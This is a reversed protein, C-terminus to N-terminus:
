LKLDDFLSMQDTDKVTSLVGLEELVKVHQKTVKTRSTFDYKSKFLQESRAVIISEAVQEGLGDISIFPCLLCKNLHDITFLKDNSKNIDIMKFSYGRLHMEMAIEYLPLLDKDKTKVLSKTKNNSLLKNINNYEEKICAYGGCMVKLNFVNPRISFYTAYYELPYNLKYWAFKWAHMVYATAHAKPFMYKIKNCSDIYWQPINNDILIKQHDPKIQKGKRVDEMIQFSLLPDINHNILYVMIDDRCGIIDKLTYGNNILDKANGLWVDTGHSLGSIRILDAFTKPKTDNLMERVFKTGFEPISLAGTTENNIDKLNINLMKLSSFLSMTDPDNNPIDKEDIGTLDKLMKLATPNDHGLIDFKLLNDHIYEFAFHTTFWDQTNDDAPFNYPTFEFISKDKPVVIIGGPHQGTTRKVDQCKLAYREIEANNVEKQLVNTFYVRANGFSTKEAITSITGARFSHDKGFMEKIFNHAKHQYLGSFNLDIDPVKDGDFGLFTEFPINHGEGYLKNKCIPCDIYPLDYGDEYKTLDIDFNSYKCKKCIYHPPLPNVDTINLFTAVLSSGVSGRSGVVYGDKLSQEVLLHSIWYIVAYGNSLISNLEKKIRKEVIEPLRDGYISYANKYVTNSVKTDVGEISPPFLKTQLPLINLDILNVIDYCNNVVIDYILNNNNLFSFENILENTTRYHMDPGSGYKLFRHNKRNLVPTHVYMNHYNRDTSDLYYVNSTAIVKKNMKTALDIIKQISKQVNQLTINGDNIEHEFGTPPPILIFDYKNIINMLEDDTKTLSAIFLDSEIPSNAILLNDKFRNLEDMNITPRGYLYKTHSLSVLEYLDRIGKQNKVYVLIYSGITNSFLSNNQIYDNIQNINFIKNENFYDIFILWISTLVDADYDARHANLKDYNVKNKKCISELSHSKYGVNISRSIYLTDILTNRIPEIGYQSLKNNIFNLDFNIGNHAILISDGFYEKIKLLGSKQDIANEVDSQNINTILSTKQSIPCNPKIFFQIRDIIQKNRIKIAGFEIVDDYNSYLGTTEIDFVIYEADNLTQDVPNIVANINKNLCEMEIGYIPKINTKKFAHMIEPYSQVNYRDTICVINHNLFELKTKLDKVSVLGDFATMKTHLCFEIRKKPSDDRKIEIIPSIPMYELLKGLYQQSDNYVSEIIVKVRLWNNITLIPDNIPERTYKKILISSKFDTLYIWYIFHGNKLEDVKINFIQGEVVAYEMGVVIDTIPIVNEDNLNINKKFNKFKYINNVNNNSEPKTEISSLIDNDYNKIHDNLTNNHNFILNALKINLLDNLFSLLNTQINKWQNLEIDTLYDLVLSDNQIFLNQRNLSKKLFLVYDNNLNNLFASIYIHWYKNEIKYIDYILNICIGNNANNFKIIKQIIDYSLGNDLFISIYIINNIHDSKYNKTKSIIEKIELEDLINITFLINTLKHM